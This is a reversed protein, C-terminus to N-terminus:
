AGLVRAALRRGEHASICPGQEFEFEFEFEGVFRRSVM